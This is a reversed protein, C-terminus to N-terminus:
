ALDSQPLIGQNKRNETRKKAQELRWAHIAAHNGSLLIDPVKKSDFEEPRTYHPYEILPSGSEDLLSFSEEHTSEAHGTAGPLLRVISDVVVLAAPEGGSLVYPGISIHLDAYDRIREDFGEYHGCILIIREHNSLSRAMQQTLSDGQPTLLITLPKENDHHSAQIADLARKVVDVKLVMGPGGGYPTDDVTGYRDTAYDRLQHTRIKVLNSKQARGIISTIIPVEFYEPFLTLIDIRM